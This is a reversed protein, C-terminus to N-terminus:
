KQHYFESFFKLTFQNIQNLPLNGRKKQAIKAAIEENQRRIKDDDRLRIKGDQRTM